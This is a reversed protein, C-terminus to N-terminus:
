KPFIKEQIYLPKGSAAIGKPEACKALVTGKIPNIIKSKLIQNDNKQSIFMSRNQKTQARHM